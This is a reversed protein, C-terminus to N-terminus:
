EALLPKLAHEASFVLDPNDVFDVSCLKGYRADAERGTTQLRGGYRYRDGSEPPGNGM